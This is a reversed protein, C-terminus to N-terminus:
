GWIELPINKYSSLSRIARVCQIIDFAQQGALTQGLLMFRRRTQTHHRKNLTLKSPGIGRPVFIIQVESHNRVLNLNNGLKSKDNLVENTKINSIAIEEELHSGLNIRNAILFHKWEDENLVHIHISQPKDIRNKQSIYM